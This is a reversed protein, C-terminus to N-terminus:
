VIINRIKTKLAQIRGIIQTPSFFNKPLLGQFLSFDITILVECCKLFLLQCISNEM